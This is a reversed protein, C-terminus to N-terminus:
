EFSFDFPSRPVEWCNEGGWVFIARPKEHTPLLVVHRADRQDLQQSLHGKSHLKWENAHQVALRKAEARDGAVCVVLKLLRQAAGQQVLPDVVNEVINRDWTKASDVLSNKLRFGGLSGDLSNDEIMWIYICSYSGVKMREVEVATPLKSEDFRRGEVLSAESNESARELLEKLLRAIDQMLGTYLDIMIDLTKLGYRVSDNVSYLHEMLETRSSLAAHASAIRPADQVLTRTDLIRNGFEALMEAILTVHFDTDLSNAATLLEYLRQELSKQNRTHCTAPASPKNTSM